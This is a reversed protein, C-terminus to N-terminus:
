GDSKTGKTGGWVNRVRRIAWKPFSLFPKGPESRCLDRWYWVLCALMSVVLLFIMITRAPSWGALVAWIGALLLPILVPPVLGLVTTCLSVGAVRRSKRRETLRILALVAGLVGLWVFFAMFGGAWPLYKAALSIAPGPIVLQEGNATKATVVTAYALFLLPQGALLWTLRHYIVTDEFHALDWFHNEELLADPDLDQGLRGPGAGEPDGREDGSDANM